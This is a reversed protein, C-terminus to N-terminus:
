GADIWGIGLRGIAGAFISQISQVVQIIRDDLLTKIYGMMIFFRRIDIDRRIFNKTIGIVSGINQNKQKQLIIEISM